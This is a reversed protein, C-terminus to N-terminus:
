RPFRKKFNEYGSNVYGLSAKDDMLECIVATKEYFNGHMINCMKPLYKAIFGWLTKRSIELNIIIDLCNDIMMRGLGVGYFPYYCLVLNPIAKVFYEYALNFNEQKIYYAILNHYSSTIDWDNLTLLANELEQTYKEEYNINLNYLDKIQQVEKTYELIELLYLCNDVNYEEISKDNWTYGIDYGCGCDFNACKMMNFLSTYKDNKNFKVLIETLIMVTNGMGQDPSNQRDQLEELFLRHALREYRVDNDNFSLILAVSVKLRNIYNTDENESNCCYLEKSIDGDLCKHLQPTLDNIIKQTIQLYKEM